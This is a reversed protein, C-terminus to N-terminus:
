LRRKALDKSVNKADQKREWQLHHVSASVFVEGGTLMMWGDETWTNWKGGEKQILQTGLPVYVIRIQKVGFDTIWLQLGQRFYDHKKM